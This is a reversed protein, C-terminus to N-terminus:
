MWMYRVHRKVLTRRRLLAARADPLERGFIVFFSEREVRTHQATNQATNQATSHQATSHQATSHQAHHSRPGYAQMMHEAQTSRQAPTSARSHTARSARQHTSQADTARQAHTNREARHQARSPPASHTYTYQQAHSAAAHASQDSRREGHRETSSHRSLPEHSACPIPTWVVCHPFRSRGFDLSNNADQKASEKCWEGRADAGM